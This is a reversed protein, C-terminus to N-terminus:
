QFSFSRSSLPSSFSPASGMFSSGEWRQHFWSAEDSQIHLILLLIWCIVMVLKLKLIYSSMESLSSTTTFKCDQLLGIVTHVYEDKNEETRRILRLFLSQSNNSHPLRNSEGFCNKYIPATMDIPKVVLSLPCSILVSLVLIDMWSNQVRQIHWLFHHTVVRQECLFLRVVWVHM